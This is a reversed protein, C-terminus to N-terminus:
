LSKARSLLGNPGNVAAAREPRSPVREDPDVASKIQKLRPLNAGWYATPYDPLDLDPYNVYATGSVYPRM